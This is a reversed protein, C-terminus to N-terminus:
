RLLRGLTAAFENAVEAADCQSGVAERLIGMVAGTTAAAALLSWAARGAGARVYSQHLQEVARQMAVEFRVRGLETLMRWRDPQEWCYELVAAGFERARESPTVVRNADLSWVVAEEFTSLCEGVCAEVAAEVTAFHEYFTNRGLGRAAAISSVSLTEGAYTVQRVALLLEGRQARVRESPTSHRDYTGRRTARARVPRPQVSEGPVSRSVGRTYM